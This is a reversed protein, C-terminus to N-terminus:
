GWCKVPDWKKHIKRKNKIASVNSMGPGCPGKQLINCFKEKRKQQTKIECKPYVKIRHFSSYPARPKPELPWFRHMELKFSWRSIDNGVYNRPQPPNKTGVALSGREDYEAKRLYIAM